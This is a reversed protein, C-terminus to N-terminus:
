DKKNNFYTSNMTCKIKGEAEGERDKEGRNRVEV